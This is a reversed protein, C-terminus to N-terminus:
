AIKGGHIAVDICINTFDERKEASVALLCHYALDQLEAGM